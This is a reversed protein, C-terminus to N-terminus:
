SPTDNNQQTITINGRKITINGIHNQQVQSPSIEEKKPRWLKWLALLVTVVGGGVMWLFDLGDKRPTIWNIAANLWEM